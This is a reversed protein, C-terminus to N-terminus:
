AIVGVPRALQCARRRGRHSYQQHRFGRRRLCSAHRYRCRSFLPRALYLRRRFRTLIARGSYASLRKNGFEIKERVPLSFIKTLDFPRRPSKIIGNDDQLTAVAPSQCQGDCEAITDSRCKQAQGRFCLHRATRIFALVTCFRGILSNLTSSSRAIANM